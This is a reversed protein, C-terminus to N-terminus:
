FASRFAEALQDYAESFFLGVNSGKVVVACKEALALSDPDYSEAQEAISELRKTLQAQIDAAASEDAAQIMVIEQPFAGGSAASYAAASVIQAPDVGYIDSLREAPVPIADTIGADALMQEGLASLDAGANQAAAAVTEQTEQAEEAIEETVAEATESAETEGASGNGCAALVLALALLAALLTAIRKM